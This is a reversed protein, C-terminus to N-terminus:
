PEFVIREVEARLKGTLASNYIKVSLLAGYISGAYLLGTITGATYAQARAKNWAYYGTILAGSSITIATMAADGRRGAYLHGAGPVIALAGAVAYSKGQFTQATEIVKSLAHAKLSSPSGEQVDALNKLASPYDRSYFDAYALLVKAFDLRCAALYPRAAAVRRLRLACDAAFLRASDATPDRALAADFEELAKSHQGQARRCEGSRFHWFSAASSDPYAFLLREYEVLAWRYENKDFLSAAFRDDAELASACRALLLAIILIFRAGM